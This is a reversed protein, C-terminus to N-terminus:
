SHGVELLVDPAGEVLERGVQRLAQLVHRDHDFVLMGALRVEEPEELFRRVQRGLDRDVAPGELLLEAV